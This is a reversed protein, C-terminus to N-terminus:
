RRRREDDGHESAARSRRNPSYKQSLSDLSGCPRTVSFKTNPTPAPPERPLHAREVSVDVDDAHGVKTRHVHTKVGSARLTSGVEALVRVVVPFSSAGIIDEDEATAAVSVQPHQRLCRWIQIDDRTAPPKTPLDHIRRTQQTSSCDPLWWADVPGDLRGYVSLTWRSWDIVV